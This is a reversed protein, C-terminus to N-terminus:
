TEGERAEPRTPFALAAALAVLYLAAGTTLTATYGFNMALLVAGLSGVVSATGNVAWAWPLLARARPGLRALAAPFPIGLAFALPMTALAAFLFRWLIPLATVPELLPAAFRAQFLGLAAAAALWALFGRRSGALRESLFSGLGSGLLFAFLTASVAYVPHGMVLLLRKMTGIELAMYGFGIAFFFLLPLAAAAGGGPLGRAAAVPVLLCVVSLGLMILFSLRLIEAGRDDFGAQGPLHGRLFDATRVTYYFFPRDDTPPSVDFPIGALAGDFEARDVLETLHTSGGPAPYLFEFGYREAVERLEADEAETFPRKCVMVNALGRDSVVRIHRGPERIGKRDLVERALATLRLARQEYAFRTVSLIGGEDLRDWYDEFAEATHLLDESLTFAGASPSMRGFVASAGIVDYSERDRRAFTRADAVTLAVGPRAYPRGTFAGFTEEVMEVVQPNIEVARVTVGPFSLAIWVDKGGGPGFLLARASPRLHFPLAVLNARFYEPNAEAEAGDFLNTYGSDDVVLGIQRPQPGKYRNSLGYPRMTDGPPLPYAAVRSMANWRVALLEPEYRGRAFPIEAAGSGETWLAFAAAAMAAAWGFRRMRGPPAWIAAAAAGAAAAIGLAAPASLVALLLPAAACGLASGLFTAAYLGHVRPAREALLGATATGVFFFPWGTGVALVLLRLGLGADLGAAEAREFPKYFPQHFPALTARALEPRFHVACLFLLVTLAGAAYLLAGVSRSSRGGLGPKFGVALGGAGLGLLALGIALSAFHYWMLVSFIRMLVLEYLLAGASLLALAATEARHDGRGEM